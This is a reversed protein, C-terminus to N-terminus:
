IFETRYEDSYDKPQDTLGFAPQDYAIARLGAQALVPINKKYVDLSSGLALGHVLLLVAGGSGEEVYRTKIGDIVAFKEM